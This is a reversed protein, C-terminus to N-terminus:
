NNPQQLNQPFILNIYCILLGVFCLLIKFIPSQDLFNNPNNSLNNKLITLQENSTNLMYHFSQIFSFWGIFKNRLFIAAMPM